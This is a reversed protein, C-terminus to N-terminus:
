AAPLLVDRTLLGDKMSFTYLSRRVAEISNDAHYILGGGSPIGIGSAAGDLMQVVKSLSEWDSKEDHASVIHPFLKLMDLLETTGSSREVIAYQGLQVAGASVGILIAGERYRRQIAEAMGSEVIVKHGAEVEGGALLVIDADNLLERSSQPFSSPIMGCHRVDAGNMAAVFLDYFEPADNNSAGIYVARPETNRARSRISQLFLGDQSKWFLLQSDALLYM